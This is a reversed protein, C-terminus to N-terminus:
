CTRTRRKPKTTMEEIRVRPLSRRHIIRTTIMMMMVFLKSSLQKAREKSHRTATKRNKGNAGRDAKLDAHLQKVIDHPLRDELGTLVVHLLTLTEIEPM